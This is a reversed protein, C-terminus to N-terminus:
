IKKFQIKPNKETLYKSFLEKGLIKLLNKELEFKNM